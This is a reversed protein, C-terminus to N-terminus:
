TAYKLNSKHVLKLIKIQVIQLTLTVKIIISCM